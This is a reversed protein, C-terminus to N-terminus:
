AADPTPTPTPTVAPQQMSSIVSSSSPPRPTNDPAVSVFSLPSSSSSGPHAAVSQQQQQKRSLLSHVLHATKPSVSKTIHPFSSVVGREEVMVVSTNSGWDQVSHNDGGVLPSSSSSSQPLLMKYQSLRGGGAAVGVPAAVVTASAATGEVSARRLGISIVHSGAAHSEGPVPSSPLLGIDTRLDPVSSLGSAMAPKSSLNLPVDPNSPPSSYRPTVAAPSRAAKPRGAAAYTPTPVVYAKRVAGAEIVEPSAVKRTLPARLRPGAQVVRSPVGGLGSGIVKAVGGGVDSLTLGRPTPLTSIRSSSSSSSLATSSPPHLISRQGVGGATAGGVGGAVALKAPGAAPQSSDISHMHELLRQYLRAQIGTLTVKDVAAPSNNPSTLRGSPSASAPSDVSAAPSSTMRLPPALTPSSSSSDAPKDIVGRPSSTSSVRQEPQAPPPPPPRPRHPLPQAAPPGSMDMKEVPSRATSMPRAGIKSPLVMVRAPLPSGPQLMIQPSSPGSRPSSSSFLRPSSTLRASSFLSVEPLSLLGGTTLAHRATAPTSSSPSPGQSSDPSAPESLSPRMEGKNVQSVVFVNHYVRTERPTSVETVPAAASVIARQQPERVQQGDEDQLQQTVLPFLKDGRIVSPTPSGPVNMYVTPKAEVSLVAMKTHYDMYDTAVSGLLKLVGHLNRGQAAMACTVGAYNHIDPNAGKRLLLEVMLKQNSEAARFLATRGSKGDTMDIEAGHALLLQVQSLDANDVATHLPTVGDFNRTNLDANPCIQLLKHLCPSNHGQVAMHIASSGTCDVANVSAGSRLLVEVADVFNLKVALHLPTQQQKNFKDVGKGAIKMLCILKNVMRMNEHVVAIHLPLDGDEDATLATKIEMLTQMTIVPPAQVTFSTRVPASPPSPPDGVEESDSVSAPQPSPTSKHETTEVNSQQMKRRKKLPLSKDANIRQEEDMVEEKLELSSLNPTPDSSLRLTSLELPISPLNVEMPQSLLSLSSSPLTSGGSLQRSLLSVQRFGPVLSLSPLNQSPLHPPHNTSPSKQIPIDIHAGTFGVAHGEVSADQNETDETKISSSISAKPSSSARKNKRKSKSNMGVAPHPVSIESHLEIDTEMMEAGNEEYEDFHQKGKASNSKGRGTKGGRKSNSSAETGRGRRKGGDGGRGRGGRGRGRGRKPASEYTNTLGEDIFVTEPPDPSKKRRGRHSIRTPQNIINKESRTSIMFLAEAAAMRDRQEKEDM